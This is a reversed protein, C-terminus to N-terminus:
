INAKKNFKIRGLFFKFLPALCLLFIILSFLQNLSLLNYLYLSRERTFELLFISFSFSGLFLISLTGPTSKRLRGRYLRHLLLFLIFFIVAFYAEAPHRKGALGAVRVGWPLSTKLGYSAGGLLMGLSVLSLGFSAVVSFIDTTKFFSIKKRRTYFYLFVAGGGLAGFLSLGPSDRVILYKLINAGFEEFHFLIYFIRGGFLSFLVTYVFTDMLAEEQLEERGYKYVLFSSLLFAMMLFFGFAFVHFPGIMFLIPKV